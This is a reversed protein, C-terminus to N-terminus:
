PDDWAKRARGAPCATGAPFHLLELPMRPSWRSYVWGAGDLEPSVPASTVPRKLLAKAYRGLLREVLAKGARPRVQLCLNRGERHLRWAPCFGAASFDAAHLHGPQENPRASLGMGACRLLSLAFYGLIEHSLLPGVQAGADVPVPQAIYGNWRAGQYPRLTPPRGPTPRWPLTKAYQCMTMHLAVPIAAFAQEDTPLIYQIRQWSRGMLALSQAEHARCQRLLWKLM